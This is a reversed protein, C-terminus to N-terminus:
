DAGAQKQKRVFARLEEQTGTAEGRGIIPEVATLIRPGPLTGKAVADRLPIDNLAGLSQITTFGAMLTLWANSAAQYADEQSSGAMGANKGDKGFIWTVHAHADIWGPLLTLGRLDYDVPAGEWYAKGEIATIIGGEVIIRKDRLVGGKGDLVTSAVIAIGKRRAPAQGTAQSATRQAVWCVGLVGLIGAVVKASRM